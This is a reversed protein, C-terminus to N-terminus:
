WPASTAWRLCVPCRPRITHVHTHTHKYHTHTHTHTTYLSGFLFCVYFCVHSTQYVITSSLHSSQLIVSCANCLAEVQKHAAVLFGLSKNVQSPSKSPVLTTQSAVHFPERDEGEGETASVSSLVTSSVSSPLLSLDQEKLRCPHPSPPVSPLPCTFAVNCFGISDYMARYWHLSACGTSHLSDCLCACTDTQIHALEGGRWTAPLFLPPLTAM